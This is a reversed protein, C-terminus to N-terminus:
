VCTNYYMYMTCTFMYTHICTHTLSHTLSHTHNTHLTYLTCTHVRIAHVQTCTCKHHSVLQIAIMLVTKLSFKRNCLDFLDELSPGLLELVMANYKGCPGFYYVQPIGVLPSPFLFPLLLPLLPLLFLLLFFFPSPLSLSLTLTPPSTLVAVYDLIVELWCNVYAVWMM